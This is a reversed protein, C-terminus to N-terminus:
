VNDLISNLQKNRYDELIVFQYKYYYHSEGYDDIIHYYLPPVENGLVGTNISEYVKGVTIHLKCCEDNCEGMLLKHHHYYPGTNTVCKIKM